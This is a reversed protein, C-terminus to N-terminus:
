RPRSSSSNLSLASRIPRSGGRWKWSTSIAANIQELASYRTSGLDGGYTRWEGRAAGSQGAAGVMTSVLMAALAALRLFCPRVTQTM